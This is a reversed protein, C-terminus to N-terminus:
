TPFQSQNLNFMAAYEIIPISRRRRLDLDRLDSCFNLTVLAAIAFRWDNSGTAGNPYFPSPTPRIAEALVEMGEEVIKM